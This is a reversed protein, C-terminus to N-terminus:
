KNIKEYLKVNYKKYLYNKYLDQMDHQKQEWIESSIATIENQGYKM